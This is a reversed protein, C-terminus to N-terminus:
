PTPCLDLREFEISSIVELVLLGNLPTARDAYPFASADSFV